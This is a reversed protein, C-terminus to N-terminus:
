KKYSKVGIQGFYPTASAVGAVGRVDERISFAFGGNIDEIFYIIPGM